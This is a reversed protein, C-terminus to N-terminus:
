MFFISYFMKKRRNYYNKGAVKHNVTSKQLKMECLANLSNSITKRIKRLAHNVLTLAFGHKHYSQFDIGLM